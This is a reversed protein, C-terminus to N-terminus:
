SSSTREGKERADNMENCLRNALESANDLTHYFAVCIPREGKKDIPGRVDISNGSPVVIYSKHELEKNLRAAESEAARKADPHNDMSFLAFTLESNERNVAWAKGRMSGSLVLEAIYKNM